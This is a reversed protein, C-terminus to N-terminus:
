AFCENSATSFVKALRSTRASNVFNNHSPTDNLFNQEFSFIKAIDSHVVCDDTYKGLM